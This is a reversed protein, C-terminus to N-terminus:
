IVTVGKNVRFMGYGDPHKFAEWDWCIDESNVKVKAIFRKIVAESYFQLSDPHVVFGNNHTIINM